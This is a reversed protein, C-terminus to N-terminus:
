FEEEFPCSECYAKRDVPMGLTKRGVLMLPEGCRPCLQDPLMVTDAARCIVFANVVSKSGRGIVSIGKGKTIKDKNM